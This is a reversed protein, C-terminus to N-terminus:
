PTTPNGGMAGAMAAIQGANIGGTSAGGMGPIATGGGGLAGAM